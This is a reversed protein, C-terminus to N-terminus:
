RCIALHKLAGVLCKEELTLRFITQTIEGGIPDTVKHNM